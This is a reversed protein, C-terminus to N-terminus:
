MTTMTDGPAINEAPLPQQQSEFYMPPPASPYLSPASVAAPEPTMMTTAPEPQPPAQYASSTTDPQYMPKYDTAAAAPVATGVALETGTGGINGVTAAGGIGSAVSKSALM